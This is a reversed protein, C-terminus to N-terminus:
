FYSTSFSNCNIKVLEEIMTLIAAWDTWFSQSNHENLILIYHLFIPTM